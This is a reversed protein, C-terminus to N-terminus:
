GLLCRLCVDKWLECMREERDSVQTVMSARGNKIVVANFGHVVVADDQMSKTIGLGIEPFDRKVHIAWHWGVIGCHFCERM